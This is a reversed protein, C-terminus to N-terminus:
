YKNKLVNNELDYINIYYGDTYVGNFSSDSKDSNFRYSRVNSTPVKGLRDFAINSAIHDFKVNYIRRGSDILVACLCEHTVLNRNKNYDADSFSNTIFAGFGTKLIESNQEVEKRTVLNLVEPDDLSVRTYNDQRSPEVYGIADNIAEKFTNSTNAGSIMDVENANYSDLTASILEQFASPVAYYKSSFDYVELDKIKRSSDTKLLVKVDGLKGSAEGYLYEDSVQNMSDSFANSNFRNLIHIINNSFIVLFISLIIIILAEFIKKKKM